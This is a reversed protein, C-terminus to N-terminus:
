KNQDNSSKAAEEIIANVDWLMIRNNGSDAIALVGKYLCVGYPWCLSSRTVAKWHNEGFSSFDLQGVVDSAPAFETQSLPLRWFLVRNNATDAVALVNGQQCIAYPFRLRQDTQAAYPWESCENMRSQGLLFDAPVDHVPHSSWGLVRHNGADAVWLGNENGTVDHPWRFSNAAPNGGRNESMSYPNPQGLLGNAPQDREPIGQWYLVRRNGTDAVWLRGGQYALGYPWYLSALTPRGTGRNPEVHNLASQGIAFDPVTASTNPVRRWVLIRHHWADAVLLQNGAVIVGTPLFCGRVPDGCGCAPGESEFDPQGLVIDAPQGDQVPVSNWILVRHNGSDCVILREEDLWVGRPGYMQKSTPHAAPLALGHPSYAGLWTLPRAVSSAPSPTAVTAGPSGAVDLDRIVHPRSLTVQIPAPKAPNSTLQKIKM